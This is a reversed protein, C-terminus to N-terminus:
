WAFAWCSGCNGKINLRDYVYFAIQLLFFGQNLVGAVYGMDVYNLHEVDATKIEHGGAFIARTQFESSGLLSQNSMELGNLRSNVESDTLDSKEWLDLAYSVKCAYYQENHSM